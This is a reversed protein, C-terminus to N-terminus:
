KNNEQHLRLTRAIIDAQLESKSQKKDRRKNKNNRDSPLNDADTSGMAKRLALEMATMLPEEDEDPAISSEQAELARVSLDIQKKRKNIGIVKAELSDGIKVLENPDSVYGKTLESVHILGPREAGIDIFVGYSEIREVVGQFVDNVKIENWTIDPPQILTLDLRGKKSDVAMVYVTVADGEKVVDTVNKVTEASLQSIHLLGDHEMGVDIIAGQLEVRKVKGNLAMKPRIDAFTQTGSESAPAIAEVAEDVPNEDVTNEVPTPPLEDTM